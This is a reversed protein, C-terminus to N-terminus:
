NEVRIIEGFPPKFDCYSYIAWLVPFEDVILIVNGPEESRLAPMYLGYHLFRVNPLTWSYDNKSISSLFHSLAARWDIKPKLIEKLIRKIYEPCKSQAQAIFGAQIVAHQVDTETM